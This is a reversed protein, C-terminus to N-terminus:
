KLVKFATDRLGFPVSGVLKVRARDRDQLKNKARRTLRITIARSEGADLDINAKSGLRLAKLKLVVAANDSDTLARVRVRAKRRAAVRDINGSLVKVEIDPRPVPTGNGTVQLTGTMSIPHVSCFFPYDGQTLYETGQVLTNSPGTLIPTLFLRGGGITGRSTVDHRVGPDANNFGITGGQDITYTTPPGYGNPDAGPGAQITIAGAPAAGALSAVAALLGVLAVRKGPKRMSVIM